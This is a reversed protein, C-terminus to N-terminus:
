EFPCGPNPQDVRIPAGPPLVYTAWVVTQDHASPNRAVHVEDAPQFFGVGAQFTESTCNAHSLVLTGEVVAVITPGPHTHWGLTGGPAITIKQVVFDSTHFTKIKIPENVPVRAVTEGVGGIVPTAVAIGVSVTLVVAAAVGVGLLRRQKM